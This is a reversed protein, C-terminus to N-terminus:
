VIGNMQLEEKCDLEAESHCRVCMETLLDDKSEEQVNPTKDLVYSYPKIEDPTLGQNDSLYKIVNSEEDRTISLGHERQMRKVTMYWGEPTKRQDSIRSLGADLNGVHCATCKSNIIDKGIQADIAFLPLSSLLAGIGIKSLKKYNM